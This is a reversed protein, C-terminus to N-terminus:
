NKEGRSKVTVHGTFKRGDTINIIYWYDQTPAKQGNMYYGDWITNSTLEAQHVLRGNRDYIVVTSGPYVDLNPINWTDNIGDGNPTFMTPIKFVAIEQSTICGEASKVYITYKGPQLYFFQNSEQWVVGTISYLYPEAGGTAEILIYDPGYTVGTIIPADGQSIVISDSGTCGWETTVHVTYTGTQNIILTQGDAGEIVVGNRSWEYTVSEFGEFSGHATLEFEGECMSFGDGLDVTLEDLGVTVSDSGTCGDGSTVLVTYTGPGSITLTQGDEGMIVEGNLQWVFSAGEGFDGQATLQAEGECMNFDDGLDVFLDTIEITIKVVAYCGDENQIRVYIVANGTLYAQPNQINNNNGANADAENTYYRINYQEPNDIVNILTLNITEVGDGGIDCTSYLADHHGEIGPYIDLVVTWVKTVEGMGDKVQGYITVPADAAAVTFPGTPIVNNGTDNTADEENSYFKVTLAPNGDTLDTAIAALDFVVQGDNDDDCESYTREGTVISCDFSGTSNASDFILNVYGFMGYSGAYDTIMMIYYEGELAGEISVYEFASPSYSCDVVQQLATYECPVETFPGWVIFDVDIPTGQQDPETYQNLDFYLDGSEAIKFYYFRPYPQSYLCGYNPGPPASEPITGDGQFPINLGFGEDNSCAPEPNICNPKVKLIIKVIKMCGEGGKTVRAWVVTENAANFATPNAIENTQNEADAETPYYRFVAEAPNDLVMPEVETLDFIEFGDGNLDVRELTFTDGNTQLEGFTVIIEDTSTCDGNSVEVKYTGSQNIVLSNSTAGTIPDGNLFWQISNQTPDANVYLTYEDQGCIYLEDGLPVGNSDVIVSSLHFSGAELFVASDYSTDSADAVLLRIHYTQGPIVNAQATLPVTRGGYEIDSFPGAVYFDPNGCWDDNVTNITVPNGDPLLAINKGSLGPDNTIGPGSILFAFVDNFSSCAWDPYEESAFIYRFSIVNGQPIFDFEFVTANNTTILALVSADDDGLWEYGGKSVIGTDPGEADKAYGSTLVIGEEFPFNSTGKKFYGWSRNASPFPETPNDKLQFNSSSSCAGGDLLVDTLLQEATFNSEASGAPNVMISANQAQSSVLYQLFVLVLLLKRM